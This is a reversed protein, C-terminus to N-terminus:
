LECNQKIDKKVYYRNRQTEKIISKSVNRIKWDNSYFYCLNSQVLPVSPLTFGWGKVGVGLSIRYNM